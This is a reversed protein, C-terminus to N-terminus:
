LTDTDITALLNRIEIDLNADGGSDEDLLRPSEGRVLAYLEELAARLEPAAAILRADAESPPNGETPYYDTDDGFHCITEGNAARLAPLNGCDIVDDQSDWHWPGPTHKGAM